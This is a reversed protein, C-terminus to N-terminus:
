TYITLKTECLNIRCKERWILCVSYLNSELLEMPPKLFTLRSEYSYICVEAKLVKIEREELQIEGGCIAM